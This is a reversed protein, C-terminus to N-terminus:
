RNLEHPVTDFDGATARSEAAVLAENADQLTKKKGAIQSQFGLDCISQMANFSVWIVFPNWQMEVLDCISEM